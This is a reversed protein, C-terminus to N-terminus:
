FNSLLCAHPATALPVAEKADVIAFVQEDDSAEDMSNMDEGNTCSLRRILLSQKFELGGDGTVRVPHKKCPCWGVTAHIGRVIDAPPATHRAAGLPVRAM